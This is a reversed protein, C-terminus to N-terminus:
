TWRDGILIAISSLIAAVVAVIGFLYYPNAFDPGTLFLVLVFSSGLLVIQAARISPDYQSLVYTRLDSLM